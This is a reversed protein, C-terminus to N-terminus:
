NTLFGEMPEFPVDKDVLIFKSNLSKPKSTVLFSTSGQVLFQNSDSVRKPKSNKM